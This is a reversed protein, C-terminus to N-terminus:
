LKLAKQAIDAIGALYSDDIAYKDSLENIAHLATELEDIRQKLREVEVTMVGNSVEAHPLNTRMWEEFDKNM